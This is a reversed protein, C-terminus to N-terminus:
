GKGLVGKRWWGARRPRAGDESESVSSESV